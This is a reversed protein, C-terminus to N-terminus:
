DDKNQWGDHSFDRTAGFGQLVLGVSVSRTLRRFYSHLLRSKPSSNGNFPFIQKM